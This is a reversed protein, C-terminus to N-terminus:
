DWVEGENWSKTANGNTFVVDEFEIEALEDDGDASNCVIIEFFEVTHNGSYRSLSDSSEDVIWMPISVRGNSIRPLAVDGTETNYSILGLLEGARCEGELYVYKGNYKSPIGTLTFAGGAQGCSIASVCFALIVMLGLKKMLFEKVTNNDGGVYKFSGYPFKNL